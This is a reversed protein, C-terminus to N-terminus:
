RRCRPRARIRLFVNEFQGLPRRPGPGLGRYRQKYSCSADLACRLSIPRPLRLTTQLLRDLRKPVATEALCGFIFSAVSFPMAETSWPQPKYSRYSQLPNCAARSLIQVLSPCSKGLGTISSDGVVCGCDHHRSAPMRALIRNSSCRLWRPARRVALGTWWRSVFILGFLLWTGLISRFMEFVNRLKAPHSCRRCLRGHCARRWPFCGSCSTSVMLGPSPFLRAFPDHFILPAAFAHLILATQLTTLKLGVTMTARCLVWGVLGHTITVAVGGTSAVKQPFM